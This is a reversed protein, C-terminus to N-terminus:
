VPLASSKRSPYSAVAVAEPRHRPRTNERGTGSLGGSQSTYCGCASGAASETSYVLTNSDTTHVQGDSGSAKLIQKSGCNDGNIFGCVNINLSTGAGYNSNIFSPTHTFLPLSWAIPPHGCAARRTASHLGCYM